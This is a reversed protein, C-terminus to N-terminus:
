QTTETRHVLRTDDSVNHRAKERSPKQMSNQQAVTICADIFEYIDANTMTIRADNQYITLGRGDRPTVRIIPGNTVEVRM